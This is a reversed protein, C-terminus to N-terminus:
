SRPPLIGRLAIIFTIGLYPQRNPHPQGNGTRGITTPNMTADTAGEKLYPTVGDDVKSLTVTESPAASNGNALAQVTLRHPHAAMETGLLTVSEAGGSEGIARGTLGPGQGFGIPSVSQLNPLAFTTVGNGGYITGLLSFLAANQAIPLIQGNCLAWDHPAFNGAFMRVEGLFPESM